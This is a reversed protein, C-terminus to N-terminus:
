LPPIFDKRLYIDDIKAKQYFKFGSKKLFDSLKKQTGPFIEGIHNVEVLLVRVNVKDWPVTQLVQLEAGEIDLSFLDVTPNGLAQLITYLPFCQLRITRRYDDLKYYETYGTPVQNSSFRLTM